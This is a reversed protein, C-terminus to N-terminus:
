PERPARIGEGGTAREGLELRYAVLRFGSEYVLDRDPDPEFGLSAYLAQAAKMTGGTRLTVVQKGAERSREVCRRVLAAGLGRRRAAPAVGLMRICSMEPPLEVDDDGVTADLELTVCGLVAGDEVAVYVETRDIRGAVDALERLYGDWGDSGPTAFERYAGATVEGAAQYESPRVDRIEM